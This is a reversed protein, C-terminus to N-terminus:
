MSATQHTCIPNEHGAGGSKGPAGGDVRRQLESQGHPREDMHIIRSGRGQPRAPTSTAM